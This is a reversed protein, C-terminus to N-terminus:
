QGPSVPRGQYEFIFVMNFKTKMPIGGELYPGFRWQMGAAVAADVFVEDCVVPLVRYPVGAEDVYFRVQCGGLRVGQAVAAPPFAPLVRTVVRDSSFSIDVVKSDDTPVANSPTTPATPAAPRPPAPPAAPAAPQDALALSFLLWM